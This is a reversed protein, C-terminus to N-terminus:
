TPTQGARQALANMAATHAALTQRSLPGKGNAGRYHQACLASVAPTLDFETSM